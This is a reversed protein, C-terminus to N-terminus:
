KKKLVENMSGTRYGELDLTVYSFGIDKFGAVIKARLGEDLFLQIAKPAVEIRVIQDHFRVRFQSFGLGKLFEEGKSIKDLREETIKTGYPFRSSLCAFSSKNWTPLGMEKSLIRIDRKTFGAEQLPSRIGLEEAATKGPRYDKVDDANSGDAVNSFGIFAAHNLSIQFLESKCFYCRNEPNEAFNPIELENSEVIIHERVGISKALECAEKFESEPYTPSTATIAAAKDGLTDVAVKLLFTSDVGGSFAVLLNEMERLSAKLKELKINAEARTKDDGLDVAVGSLGAIFEKGNSAAENKLM